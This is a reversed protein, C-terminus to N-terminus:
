RDAEIENSLVVAQMQQDYNDQMEMVTVSHTRVQEELTKQRLESEHQAQQAARM